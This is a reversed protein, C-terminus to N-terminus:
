HEHRRPAGACSPEPKCADCEVSPMGGTALMSPHSTPRMPNAKPHASDQGSTPLATAARQAPKTVEAQAKAKAKAAKAKAAEVKARAQAEEEEERERPRTLDLWPKAACKELNVLLTPGDLSWSCEFPQVRAFLPAVELLLSGDVLVRLADGEM